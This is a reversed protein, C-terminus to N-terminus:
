GYEDADISCRIAALFGLQEWTLHWGLLQHQGPLRELVAGEETTVTDISEEEGDEDGFFRVIFLVLDVDPRAALDQLRPRLPEIRALIKGIQADLMLGRDRCHLSWSHMVPVPPQTRKSGHVKIEDPATGLFATVAAATFTESRIAFYVRQSIKM